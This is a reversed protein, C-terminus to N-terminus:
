DLFKIDSINFEDYQIPNNKVYSNSELIKIGDEDFSFDALRIDLSSCSCAYNGGSERLRMASYEFPHDICKGNERIMIVMVVLFAILCISTLAILIKLNKNM